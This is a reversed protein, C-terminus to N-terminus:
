FRGVLAGGTETINICGSCCIRNQWAAVAAISQASTDSAILGTVEPVIQETLGGVPTAVVPLGAGHAAAIVGSQSAKTHSVVLVDYRGLIKAIDAAAIWRNNIEAGLHELRARDLGLDGAGFVGVEIPMGARKHLEMASAFTSLGKYPLMRGFFLVRLPGGTGDSNTLKPAYSLDPHFLVSIRSEPVIKARVLGEAVSYADGCSRGDLKVCLWRNVWATRDGLHPDADHVVVVHRIGAKRLMPAILPSWVHPMLTVFARTGDTLVRQMVARRLKLIATLDLSAGATSYTEVPLIVEGFSDYKHFLENSRSISFTTHSDHGLRRCAEALELTFQPLAGYRGWYALM